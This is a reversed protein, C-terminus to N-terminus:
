LRSRKEYRKLKTRADALDNQLHGIKELLNFVTDIGEINIDLDHYLRVMKEIDTLKDEHVHLSKKFNSVEILECEILQNFFTIEVKFQICLQELPIYNENTIM